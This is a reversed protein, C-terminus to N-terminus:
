FDKYTGAIIRLTISNLEGLVFTITKITPRLYRRKPRRPKRM